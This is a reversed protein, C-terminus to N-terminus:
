GEKQISYHRDLFFYMDHSGRRGAFFQAYDIEGTVLIEIIKKKIDSLGSVITEEARYENADLYVDEQIIASVIDQGEYVRVTFLDVHSAYDVDIRIAGDSSKSIQRALVFIDSILKNKKNECM